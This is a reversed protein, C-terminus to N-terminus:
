LIKSRSGIGRWGRRLGRICDDNSARPVLSRVFSRSSMSSSSSPLPFPNHVSSSRVFSRPRSHSKAPARSHLAVIVSSQIPRALSISQCPWVSVMKNRSATVSSFPLSLSLSLSPPLPLAPRNYNTTIPGKAGTPWLPREKRREPNLLETQSNLSQVRDM